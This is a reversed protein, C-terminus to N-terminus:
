EEYYNIFRNKNKIKKKGPINTTNRNNAQTKQLSVVIKQVSNFYKM